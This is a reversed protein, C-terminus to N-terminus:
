ATFQGMPQPLSNLPTYSRCFRFTIWKVELVLARAAVAVSISGSSGARASRIPASLRSCSM